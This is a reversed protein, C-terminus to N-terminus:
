FFIWRSTIVGGVFMIGLLYVLNESAKPLINPNHDKRPIPNQDKRPIPNQVKVDPSKKIERPKSYNVGTNSGFKMDKTALTLTNNYGAIKEKLIIMNSPILILGPSIAMNLVVKTNKIAKRMNSISASVDDQAITDKFIKHFVDQTQLSKAGKGVISWRTQAQAGLVCYIYSEVSQQLLKLGLPTLGDSKKAIFQTYDTDSNNTVKDVEQYKIGLVGGTRYYSYRYNRVRSKNPLRSHWLGIETQGRHFKNVWTKRIPINRQLTKLMDKTVYKTMKSPNRLFRRMHYYLHYRAISTIVKSTGKSELLHETIIGCKYTIIYAALLSAFYPDNIYDFKVRTINKTTGTWKSDLDAFNSVFSNHSTNICDCVYIEFRNLGYPLPDRNHIFTQVTGYNGWIREWQYLYWTWKKNTRFTSSKIDYSELDTVKFFIDKSELTGDKAFTAQFDFKSMEAGPYKKRFDEKMKRIEIPVAANVKEYNQGYYNRFIDESSSM